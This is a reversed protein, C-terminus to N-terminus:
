ATDAPAPTPAPISRPPNTLSWGLLLMLAVLTLSGVAETTSISDSSCGAETTGRPMSRDDMRIIPGDVFRSAELAVTRGTAGIRAWCVPDQRLFLAFLALTGVAVSVVVTTGSRVVGTGGGAVRVAAVFFLVAPVFFVLGVGSVLGVTGLVLDLVGAAVLLSPRGRVGVFGLMAPSVFVVAFAITGAIQASREIPTSGVVRLAAVGIGLAVSPAIAAIAVRPTGSRTTSM